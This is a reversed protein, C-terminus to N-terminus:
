ITVAATFDPSMPVIYLLAPTFALPVEIRSRLLDETKLFFALRHLCARLRSLGAARGHRGAAPGGPAAPKCPVIKGALGQRAASCGFGREQQTGCSWGRSGPHRGGPQAERWAGLWPSGPLLSAVLPASGRFRWGQGPAFPRGGQRQAEGENLELRGPEAKTVPLRGAPGSTHPCGLAEASGGAGVPLMPTWVLAPSHTPLRPQALM